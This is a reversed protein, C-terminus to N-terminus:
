ADIEQNSLLKLLVLKLVLVLEPLDCYLELKKEM